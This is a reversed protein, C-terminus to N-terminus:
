EINHEVHLLESTGGGGVTFGIQQHLNKKRNFAEKAM